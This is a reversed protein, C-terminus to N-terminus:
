PGHVLQPRKKNEASYILKVTILSFLSNGHTWESLNVTKLKWGFYSNTSSESFLIFPFHIPLIANIDLYFPPTLNPFVLFTPVIKVIKNTAVKTNSGGM